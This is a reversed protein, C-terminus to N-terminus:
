ITALTVVRVYVMLAILAVRAVTRRRRVVVVVPTLVAAPNSQIDPNANLAHTPAPALQANPFRM